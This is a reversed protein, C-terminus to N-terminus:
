APAELLEVRVVRPRSAVARGTSGDRAVDVPLSITAAGLVAALDALAAARTDRETGTALPETLDPATIVYSWADGVQAVHAVLEAPQYNTTATSMSDELRTSM